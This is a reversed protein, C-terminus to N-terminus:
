KVVALVLKFPLVQGYYQIPKECASIKNTLMLDQSCLALIRLYFL